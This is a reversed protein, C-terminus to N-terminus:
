TNCLPLFMRCPVAACNVSFSHPTLHPCMWGLKSKWCVRKPWCSDSGLLRRNNRTLGVSVSFHLVPHQSQSSCVAAVVGLSWCCPCSRGVRSELSPWTIVTHSLVPCELNLCSINVFEANSARHHAGRVISCKRCSQWVRLIQSFWGPRSVCCYSLLEIARRLVELAYCCVNLTGTLALSLLSSSHQSITWLM